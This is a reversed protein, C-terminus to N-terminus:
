FLHQGKEEMRGPDPFIKYFEVLKMRTAQLREEVVRSFLKYLQFGLDRDKEIMERLQKGEIVIALTEEGARASFHWYHPPFLWSWGLVSGGMIKEINVPGYNEVDIQLNVFGTEILFLRDAVGNEEFVLEGAVFKKLTAHSALKEILDEPFNEFFPLTKLLDVFSHM